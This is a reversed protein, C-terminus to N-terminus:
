PKILPNLEKLCDEYSTDNKEFVLEIKIRTTEVGEVSHFVRPNWCYWVDEELKKSVVPNVKNYRIIDSHEKNKNKKDYLVTEVNSGGADIVYSFAVKRDQDTHVPFSAKTDRYNSVCLILSMLSKGLLPAFHEDVYASLKDDRPIRLRDVYNYNSHYKQCILRFKEDYEPNLVLSRIHNKLEDPLKPLDLTYFNYDIDLNM